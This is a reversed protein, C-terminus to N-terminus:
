SSAARSWPQNWELWYSGLEALLRMFRRFDTPKIVYSNAQREYALAIDQESNSTTLIIVPIYRLEESDRIQQLVELGSLNPLRLDLLIIQPRPSQRMDAYAGQRFLYDLAMLGDTVHYVHMPIPHDELARMVLEAHATNDEVLLIPVPNRPM